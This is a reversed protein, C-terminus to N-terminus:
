SNFFKQYSHKDFLSFFYKKKIQKTYLNNKIYDEDDDFIYSGKYTVSFIREGPIFSLPFPLHTFYDYMEVNNHEYLPKFKNNKKLYYKM